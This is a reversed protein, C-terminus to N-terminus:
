RSARSRQDKRLFDILAKLAAPTQRRSSYYLAFPASVPRWEQLVEVLRGSKLVEAVLALPLQALGVGDLLASRILNGDNVILSGSVRIDFMKDNGRFYWPMLAGSPLRIRICNHATLDDPHKPTGRAALYAPAAVVASRWEDTVRVAIMDRDVRDGMRIGADFQQAVIDVNASDSSIELRIDPYQALFTGLVPGLVAQAVPPAVTIRLLGAPKERFANLSDIAAEYDDIVPRLRGLLTEGAETPAVSRTTRNLLRVGLREELNRITESLTAPSIGLQKAARTFNRQEAVAIFASLEGFETGRM